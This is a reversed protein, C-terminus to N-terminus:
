HFLKQQDVIGFFSFSQYIKYFSHKGTSLGSYVLHGIYKLLLSSKGTLMRSFVLHGAYKTLHIKTM